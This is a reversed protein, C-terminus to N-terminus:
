RGRAPGRGDSRREGPPELHLRVRRSPWLGVSHTRRHLWRARTRRTRARRDDAAADRPRLRPEFRDRLVRAFLALDRDAGGPRRAARPVCRVGVRHRPVHPEQRRSGSRNALGEPFQASASNLLLRPTGIGNAAMIVVDATVRRDAGSRDIYVVGTARGRKDVTVERVRCGTRIEAGAEVAMRGYTVDADSRAGRACGVDCAGCYNCPQRRADGHPRSIIAADMPWCHWGLQDFARLMRTAGEGLPIPPTTRERRPPQAPDGALGSVGIVEDNVDYWPEVTAYDIPWDDGVGDQTRACFDSPHFRPYAAGWLITGGGVGNWMLPEFDSESTDVPYDQPLRRDNPSKQMSGFRVREWDPRTQSEHATTLWDGQELCVVNWGRRALTWAAATGSAGAGVIVADVTADRGGGGEESPSPSPM